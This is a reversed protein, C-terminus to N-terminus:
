TSAGSEGDPFPPRANGVSGVNIIMGGEDEAAWGRQYFCGQCMWSRDQDCDNEEQVDHTGAESDGNHGLVLSILARTGRGYTTWIPDSM